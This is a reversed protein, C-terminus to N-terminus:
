PKMICFIESEDLPKESHAVIQVREAIKQVNLLKIYKKQRETAQKTSEAWSVLTSKLEVMEPLILREQRDKPLPTIDAHLIHYGKCM